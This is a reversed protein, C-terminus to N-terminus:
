DNYIPISQFLPFDELLIKLIQMVISQFKHRRVTYGYNIFCHQELTAKDKYASIHKFCSVIFNTPVILHFQVCIIVLVFDTKNIGKRHSINRGRVKLNGQNRETTIQIMVTIDITM